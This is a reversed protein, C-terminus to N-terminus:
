YNIWGYIAIQHWGFFWVCKYGIVGWVRRNNCSPVEANNSSKKEPQHNCPTWCHCAAQGYAYVGELTGEMSANLVPKVYSKKM